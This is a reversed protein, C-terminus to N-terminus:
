CGFAVTVHVLLHRVFTHQHYLPDGTPVCQLYIQVYYLITKYIYICLHMYVNVYIHHLYLYLLVISISTGTQTENEFFTHIVLQSVKPIHIRKVHEYKNM